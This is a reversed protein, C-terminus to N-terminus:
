DSDPFLAIKNVMKRHLVSTKKNNTIVSSAKANESTMCLLSANGVLHGQVFQQCSASRGIQQTFASMNSYKMGVQPCFPNKCYILACVRQKHRRKSMADVYILCDCYVFV